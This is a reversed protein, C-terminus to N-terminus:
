TGLGSRTINWCTPQMAFFKDTVKALQLATLGEPVAEEYMLKLIAQAAEQLDDEMSVVLLEPKGDAGRMTWPDGEWEELRKRFYGSNASMM